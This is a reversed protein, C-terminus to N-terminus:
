KKDEKSNTSEEPTGSEDNSDSSTLNPLNSSKDKIDKFLKGKSIFNLLFAGGVCLSTILLLIFFLSNDTPISDSKNKQNTSKSKNDKFNNTASM